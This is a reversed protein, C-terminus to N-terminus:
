RPIPVLYAWPQQSDTIHLRLYSVSGHSNLHGQAVPFPPVRHAWNNRRIDARVSTGNLTFRDFEARYRMHNLPFNGPPWGAVGGDWPTPGLGMRCIKQVEYVDVFNQVTIM